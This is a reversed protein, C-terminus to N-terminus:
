RATQLAVEFYRGVGIRDPGIHIPQPADSTRARLWGVFRVQNGHADDWAVKSFGMGIHSFRARAPLLESPEGWGNRNRDVWLRLREYIPHGERIAGSLTNGDREFAQMLANCGNRVSAYTASGLLERGSTILGDGDVDLALFAVGADAAPWAVRELQGDGDIDFRV